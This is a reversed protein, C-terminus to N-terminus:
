RQARRQDRALARGIGDDGRSSRIKKQLLAPYAEAFANELGYGATISDGFCIVNRTSAEAAHLSCFEQGAFAM